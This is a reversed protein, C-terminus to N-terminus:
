MYPPFPKAHVSYVNEPVFSKYDCASLHTFLMGTACTFHSYIIKETDPNLEVFMRLIYERAAIADKQPGLPVFFM